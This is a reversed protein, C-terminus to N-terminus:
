QPSFQMHALIPCTGDHMGFRLWTAGTIQWSVCSMNSAKSNLCELKFGMRCSEEVICRGVSERGVTAVYSPLLLILMLLLQM